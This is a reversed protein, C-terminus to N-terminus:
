VTDYYERVDAPLSLEKNGKQHALDHCGKCVIVINKADCRLDPRAGKTHLHHFNHPHFHRIDKGCNVCMRTREHWIKLFADMEKGVRRKRGKGIKNIYKKGGKNKLGVGRAPKSQVGCMPCLEGENWKFMCNKCIAM